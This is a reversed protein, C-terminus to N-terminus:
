LSVENHVLLFYECGFRFLHVCYEISGVTVSLPLYLSLSRTFPLSFSPVIRALSVFLEHLKRMKVNADEYKKESINRKKKQCM